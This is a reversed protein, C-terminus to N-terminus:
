GSCGPQGVTCSFGIGQLAVLSSFVTAMAQAMMVLDSHETLTPPVWQRKGPLPLTAASATM